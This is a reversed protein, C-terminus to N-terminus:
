RGIMKAVERIYEPTTGCCGGVIGAGADILAKVHRAFDPANMSYIANGNDDIFPMGANPKAIVPISVNEKINRIVSVLQDPGVSCNVGVADAGAAELSVAAEIANGGSFISGDADVTMTCMIPLECVTSAADVAALTEEINIMTEAVILDVGSDKLIGIQEQYMEFAAEYTMEGAPAMMKGSTTIDAAVYVKHDAEDAVERSYSVLTRNIEEMRDQLGHMTLSVRNGGFTPAYIINSGAEIYARQLNQIVDKHALVWEETCVGKPMGAAMLNSGTAGDLLVINQTLEQFEQKTM